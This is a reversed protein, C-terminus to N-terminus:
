TRSAAGADDFQVISISALMSRMAGPDIADRPVCGARDRLQKWYDILAQQAVTVGQFVTQKSM